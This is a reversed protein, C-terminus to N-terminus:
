LFVSPSPNVVIHRLPNSVDGGGAHKVFEAPSHFKGHCVCMISVDEGKRYKYLFGDIKRGNPGEVKSSVMPMDMMIKGIDGTSSTRMTLSGLTRLPSQQTVTGNLPKGTSATPPLASNQNTDDSTSPSRAETSQCIASGDPGQDQPNASSSGQSGISRRLQLRNVAGDGGDERGPKNPVSSSGVSIRRELRKRRAELRRRNQMERRRWREEETETPLSSTRLLPLPAAPSPDGDAASVSCVSAISSSRALRARKADPSMDTGFRGGLSLGLSLEIEDSEGGVASGSGNAARREGGGGGFVGLFDRSAM